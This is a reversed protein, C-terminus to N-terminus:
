DMAEKGTLGAMGNGNKGPNFFDGYGGEHTWYGYGMGNENAASAIDQAAQADCSRYADLAATLSGDDPMGNGLNLDLMVIERMANQTHRYYALDTGKMKDAVSVTMAPRPDVAGRTAIIDEEYTNIEVNDIYWGDKTRYTDSDLHFRVLVTEGIYDGLDIYARETSTPYGPTVSVDYYGYMKVQDWNAGNDTSIEVWLMDGGDMEYMHDFELAAYDGDLYVGNLLTLYTDWAEPYNTGLSDTIMGAPTLEWGSTKSLAGPTYLITTCYTPLTGIVTSYYKWYYQEYRVADNANLGVQCRSLSGVNMTHYNFRITGDSSDLIAQFTVSTSSSYGIMVDNWTVVLEGTPIVKAYVDGREYSGHGPGLDAHFPAIMYHFYMQSSPFIQPSGTVINYAPVDMIIYGFATVSLQNFTQGYLSFTYPITKFQNPYDEDITLDNAPDVIDVWYTTCSGSTDVAYDMVGYKDDTDWNDANAFDDSFANSGDHDVLSLDYIEWGRYGGTQWSAFMLIIDVQQSDYDSIDFYDIGSYTYTFGPGDDVYPLDLARGLAFIERVYGDLPTLLTWGTGDDILVCGGSSSDAVISHTLKLYQADVNVNEFTLTDAYFPGYTNTADDRCVWTSGIEHWHNLEAYPLPEIFLDYDGVPTGPPISIAAVVTETAGGNIWEPGDISLVEWGDPLALELDDENLPVQVDPDPHDHMVDIYALTMGGAQLDVPKITIDVIELGGGAGQWEYRPHEVVVVTRPSNRDSGSGIGGDNDEVYLTATYTGPRLFRIEYNYEWNPAYPGTYPTIEWEVGESGPTVECWQTSIWGGPPEDGPVDRIHGHFYIWDGLYVANDAGAYHNAYTGDGYVEPGVNNVIITHTDYDGPVGNSTVVLKIESTDPGNPFTHTLKPNFPDSFVWGSDVFNSDVYWEYGTGGATLRYNSFRINMGPFIVHSYPNYSYKAAETGGQNELGVTASRGNDYSTSYFNVDLYRFDITNDDWLIIEFTGPDNRYSSAFINYWEIVLYQHGAMSGSTAVGTKYYIYSNYSSGQIRLSDWYVYAANNPYSGSTSPINYNYYYSHRTNPTGFDMSGTTAVYITRGTYYQVGFFNFNFPLNLTNYTNYGYTSRLINGGNAPSADIFPEILTDDISYGKPGGTGYGEIIGTIITPKAEDAEDPGTISVAKAASAPTLIIVLSSIVLVVVMLFVTIFRKLKKAM